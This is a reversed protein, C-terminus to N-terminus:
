LASLAVVHDTIVCRSSTNQSRTLAVAHDTIARYRKTIRNTSGRPRHYRSINQLETLTVAHDTITCLYTAHFQMIVRDHTTCLLVVIFKRNFCPKPYPRLIDVSNTAFGQHPTRPHQYIKPMKVHLKVGKVLCLFRLLCNAHIKISDFSIWYFNYIQFNMCKQQIKEMNRIICVILFPLVFAM